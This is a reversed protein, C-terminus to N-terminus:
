ILPNLQGDTVPGAPDQCRGTWGVSVGDTAGPGGHLVCGAGEGSRSRTHSTCARTQRM